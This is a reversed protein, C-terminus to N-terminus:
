IPEQISKYIPDGTGFMRNDQGCITQGQRARRLQLPFIGLM